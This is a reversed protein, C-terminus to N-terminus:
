SGSAAHVAATVGPGVPSRPPDPMVTGPVVPVRPGSSAARGMTQEAFQQAMAMMQRMDPMTMGELPTGDAAAEGDEGDEGGDESDLFAELLQMFPLHKRIADKMLVALLIPAHAMFLGGWAGGAMMKMLFRRIRPNTRALEEWAEGVTVDEDDDKRTADIVAAGIEPDMVKILKGAKRYLRNMGKAIVGERFQPVPQAPKDDRVAKLGRRRKEDPARDGAPPPATRAAEAKQAKLEEVSPSKRPRGAARKPREEGTQPDRTMGYPADGAAKEAAEAQMAYFGTLDPSEDVPTESM